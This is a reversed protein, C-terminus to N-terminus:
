EEKIVGSRKLLKEVSEDGTPRIDKRHALYQWGNGAVAFRYGKVRDDGPLDKEVENRTFCKRVVGPREDNDNGMFKCMVVQGERIDTPVEQAISLYISELEKETYDQRIIPENM